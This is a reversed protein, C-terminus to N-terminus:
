SRHEPAEPKRTLVEDLEVLGARSGIEYFRQRALYGAMRKEAVMRSLLAALDFAGEGQHRELADRTLIQLGYDIYEIAPDGSADNRIGKRYLLIEGEAFAVNSTDWRGNNKFVTMLGDRGSRQYTSQVDPWDLQLYSDGYLVFFPGDLQRTAQRLAGGTGLLVPGDYSYAVELGFQRGDRVHEEVASGLHGLALVVKHGGQAKIQHLQHDIFPRGAVELMVKPTDNTLPAM